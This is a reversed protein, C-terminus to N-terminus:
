EASLEQTKAIKIADKSSSGKDASALIEWGIALDESASAAWDEFTDEDVVRIAIPMFSHGAYGEGAGCIQSCQGYYLGEKEAKFWGSNLRGPVADIKIGFSPMAFSHLVDGSTVDLRVVKGLPVVLEADVALLRPYNEIGDGRELAMDKHASLDYGDEGVPLMSSVYEGIDYDPYEYGWNWQYGTIKITVDAEPIVQQAYLLRISPAVIILLIIIPAVTWVIEIATNHTTKSAVPNAKARFKVFIIALLAMVFLTIVTIIVLTFWNLWVIDEMIPTVANQFGIQWPEPQQASAGFAFVVAAILTFAGILAQAARDFSMKVTDEGRKELRLSSFEFKFDLRPFEFKSAGQKDKM